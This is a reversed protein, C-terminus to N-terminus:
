LVQPFCLVPRRPSHRDRDRRREADREDDASDSCLREFCMCVYERDGSMHLLNNVRATGMRERAERGSRM